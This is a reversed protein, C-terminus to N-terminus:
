ISITASSPPLTRNDAAVNAVFDDIVTTIANLGGLREYLSAEQAQTTDSRAGFVLALVSM